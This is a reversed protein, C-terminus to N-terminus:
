ERRDYWTTFLATYTKWRGTRQRGTERGDRQKCEWWLHGAREWVDGGGGVHVGAAATDASIAGGVGSGTDSRPLVHLAAQRGALDRAQTDGTVERM